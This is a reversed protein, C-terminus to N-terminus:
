HASNAEQVHGSFIKHDGVENSWATLLASNEKLPFVPASGEPGASCEALTRDFNQPDVLNSVNGRVMIEGGRDGCGIMLNAADLICGGFSERVQQLVQVKTEYTYDLIGPPTNQQDEALLAIANDGIAVRRVALINEYFVALKDTINEMQVIHIPNAAYQSILEERDQWSEVIIGDAERFMRDKSVTRAELFDNEEKNPQRVVFDPAHCSIVFPTGLAAKIEVAVLGSRWSNAHVLDYPKEQRNFFELMYDTLAAIVDPLNEKRVSEASPVSSYIVKTNDMWEYVEPLREDEQPAFIDVQYGLRALNRTIQALYENQREREVDGLDMFPFARDSILGIKRKM